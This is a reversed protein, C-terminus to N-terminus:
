PQESEAARRGKGLPVRLVIDRGSGSEDVDGGQDVADPGVSYVRYDDGDVVWRLPAGDFPDGPVEALFDPVLDGLTKPLQGNIGRFREIAVAMRVIDRRATGRGVGDVFADFSSLSFKAIPYKWSAVRSEFAQRITEQADGMMARLSAQDTAASAAVVERMLRLYVARDAQRFFITGATAPAARVLLEPNDFLEMDIVRAGLMGRRLHAYYDIAALDRDFRALDDGSSDDAALTQRLCNVAVRDYSIRSLLALPTPHM